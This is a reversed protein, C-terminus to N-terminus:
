PRCILRIDFIDGTNQIPKTKDTQSRVNKRQNYNDVQMSIGHYVQSIEALKGLALWETKKGALKLQILRIDRFEKSTYLKNRATLGISILKETYLYSFVKYALIQFIRKSFNCKQEKFMLILTSCFTGCDNHQFYTQPCYLFVLQKAELEYSSDM